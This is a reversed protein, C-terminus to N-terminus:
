FKESFVVQWKFNKKFFLRSGNKEVRTVLNGETLWYMLVFPLREWYIKDIKDLGFLIIVAGREDFRKIEHKPKKLWADLM